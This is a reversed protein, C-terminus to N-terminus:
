GDGIRRCKAFNVEIAVGTLRDYDDSSWWDAAKAGLYRMSQYLLPEVFGRTDSDGSIATNAAGMVTYNRHLPGGEAAIAEARSWVGGTNPQGTTMAKIIVEDGHKDEPINGVKLSIIITVSYRNDTVEQGVNNADKGVIGYFVQGSRPHPRGDETINVVQEATAATYGSGLVYTRLADRVEVLLARM